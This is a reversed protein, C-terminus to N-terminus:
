REPGAGGRAADVSAETPPEIVIKVNAPQERPNVEARRNRARGETTENDAVPNSEGRSAVELNAPDVGQRALYDRVAQARRQGLQENYDPSGTADAYGEILVKADEHSALRQAIEDLTARSPETLDARDVQFNVPRLVVTEFAAAEAPQPAPAAAMPAREGRGGFAYRLSALVGDSRYRADVPPTGPSPALLDDSGPTGDFHARETELYRYGLSLVLRRAAAYDLGAGAQYAFVTDEDDRTAGAADVVQDMKVNTTGAGAGLYPRLRPAFSPARFGYWLNAMGASAEETGSREADNRRFAYELEPRWGSAFAYGLSVAGLGGEDFDLTGSAGGLNQDRQYNGGGAIQGYFGQADDAAAAPTAAAIGTALVLAAPLRTRM